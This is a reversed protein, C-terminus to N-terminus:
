HLVARHWAIEEVFCPDPVGDETVDINIYKLIHEGIQKKIDSTLMSHDHSSTDIVNIIAEICFQGHSFFNGSSDTSCLELRITSGSPDIDLINALIMCGDDYTRTAFVTEDYEM